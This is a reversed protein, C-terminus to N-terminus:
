EILKKEEKSVSKKFNLNKEVDYGMLWAPNIGFFQSIIKVTTIKPTMKQNIYKSITSPHLDVIEAITYITENREAMLQKLRKPFNEKKIKNYTM